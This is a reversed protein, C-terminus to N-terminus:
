GQIGCGNPHKKIKQRWELRQFVSPLFYDAIDHDSSLGKPTSQFSDRLIRITSQQIVMHNKM